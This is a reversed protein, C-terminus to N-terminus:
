LGYGGRILARVIIATVTTVVFFIQASVQIVFIWPQVNESDIFKIGPILHYLIVLLFSMVGFALIFVATLTMSADRNTFDLILRHIVELGVRAWIGVLAFVGGLTAFNTLADDYRPDQKTLENRAIICIIAVGISIAIICEAITAIIEFQIGM